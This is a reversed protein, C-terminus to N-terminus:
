PRPSARRELRARPTPQARTASTSRGRRRTPRVRDDAHEGDADEADSIAWALREVFQAAAHDTSLHVTHVHEDLLVSPDAYFATPDTTVIIRPM